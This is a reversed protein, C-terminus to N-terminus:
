CYLKQSFSIFFLLYSVKKTFEAQHKSIQATISIGMQSLCLAIFCLSFWVSMEVPFHSLQRGELSCKIIQFPLELHSTSIPQVRSFPLTEINGYDVYLVKM